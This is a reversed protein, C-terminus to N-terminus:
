YCLISICHLTSILHISVLLISNRIFVLYVNAQWVLLDIKSCFFTSDNYCCNRLIGSSICASVKNSLVDLFSWLVFPDSLNSVSAWFNYSREPDWGYWQWLVEHLGAVGECVARSEIDCARGTGESSGLVMWQSWWVCSEEM